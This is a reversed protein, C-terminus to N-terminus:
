PPAKPGIWIEVPAEPGGGITEGPSDNIVNPLVINETHIGSRAFVRQLFIVDNTNTGFIDVGFIVFRSFVRPDLQVQWIRKGAIQNAQDFIREFQLSLFLAEPDNAPYGLKIQGGGDAALRTALTVSLSPSIFRWAAAQQLQAALADAHAAAARARAAESNAVAIQSKAKEAEMRLFAVQKDARRQLEAAADGSRGGFVYEGIVGILIVVTGVALAIKHLFPKGRSEALVVLLEIGLGVAVLVTSWEAYSRDTSFVM